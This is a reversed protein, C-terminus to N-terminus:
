RQGPIPGLDDGTVPITKNVGPFVNGFALTRPNTISLAQFVTGARHHQGSRARRAGVRSSDSCCLARGALRESGRQM